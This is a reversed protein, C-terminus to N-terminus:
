LKDETTERATCQSSLHTDLRDGEENWTSHTLRGMDTYVYDVTYPDEGPCEVVWVKDPKSLDRRVGAVLLLLSFEVFCVFLFALIHRPQFLWALLCGVAKIRNVAQTRRDRRRRKATLRPDEPVPTETYKVYGYVNPDMSM